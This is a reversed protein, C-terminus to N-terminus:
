ILFLMISYKSELIDRMLTRQDDGDYITFSRSYGLAEIYRRLIRSRTSEITPAPASSIQTLVNWEVQTRM